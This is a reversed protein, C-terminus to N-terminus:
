IANPLGMGEDALTAREQDGISGRLAEMWVSKAKKAVPVLPSPKTKRGVRMRVM